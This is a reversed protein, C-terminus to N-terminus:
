FGGFEETDLEKGHQKRRKRLTVGSLSGVCLFAIEGGLDTICSKVISMKHQPRFLKNTESSVIYLYYGLISITNKM